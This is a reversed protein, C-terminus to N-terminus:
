FCSSQERQKEQQHSNEAQTKNLLRKQKNQWMSSKCSSRTLLDRTFMAGFAAQSFHTHPQNIIPTNTHTRDSRSPSAPAVPPASPFVFPDWRGASSAAPRDPANRRDPPCSRSAAATRRWPSASPTSICVHTVDQTDRRVDYFGCAARGSKFMM